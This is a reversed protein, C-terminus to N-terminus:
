DDSLATRLGNLKFLAKQLYPTDVASVRTLLMQTVWRLNDLAQEFQDFVREAIEGDTELVRLEDPTLMSKLEQTDYSSLLTAIDYGASTKGRPRYLSKLEQIDKSNLASVMKLVSKAWM